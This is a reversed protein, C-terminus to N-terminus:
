FAEPKFSITSIPGMTTIWLLTIRVKPHFSTMYKCWILISCSSSCKWKKSWASTNHITKRWPTERSEKPVFSNVKSYMEITKASSPAERPELVWSTTKSYKTTESRRLKRKKWPNSKNEVKGKKRATKQARTQDRHIFRM